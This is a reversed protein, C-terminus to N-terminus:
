MYFSNPMYIRMVVQLIVSLGLLGILIYALPKSYEKDVYRKHSDTYTGFIANFFDILSWIGLGGLTIIMLLGTGIKGLYFRHVGFIGLFYALVIVVNRSKPSILSGYPNPQYGPHPPYGQPPPAAQNPQGQPPQPGGAPHQTGGYTLPGKSLDAAQAPADQPGTAKLDYGCSPCKLADPAVEANCKPCNTM